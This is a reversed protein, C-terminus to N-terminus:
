PFILVAEGRDLTAAALGADYGADPLAHLRRPCAARLVLRDLPGVRNAVLLCGGVRPVRERGYVRLRYLLRVVLGAVLSLM